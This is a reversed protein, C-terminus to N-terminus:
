DLKICTDTYYCYFLTQYNNKLCPTGMEEHERGCTEVVTYLSSVVLLIATLIIM